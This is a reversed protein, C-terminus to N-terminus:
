GAAGRHRGMRALVGLHRWEAEAKGAHPACIVPRMRVLRKFQLRAFMTSLSGLCIFALTRGAVGQSSVGVVM